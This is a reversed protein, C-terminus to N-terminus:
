MWRKRKAYFIFGIIFAIMVALIIWFVWPNDQLPLGVNM